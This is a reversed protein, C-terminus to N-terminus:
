RFRQSIDATEGKVGAVLFVGLKDRISVSFPCGARGQPCTEAEASRLRRELVAVHAALRKIEGKAQRLRRSEAETM